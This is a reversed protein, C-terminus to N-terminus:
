LYFGQVLAQFVEPCTLAHSVQHQVCRFETKLTTIRKEQEINVDVHLVSTKTVWM